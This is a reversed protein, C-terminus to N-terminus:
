WSKSKPMLSRPQKPWSAPKPRSRTACAKPKPGSWLAAFKPGQHLSVSTRQKKRLPTVFDDIDMELPDLDEERASFYGPRKRRLTGDGEPVDSTQVEEDVM